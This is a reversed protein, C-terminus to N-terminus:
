VEECLGLVGGSGRWSLARRLRRGVYLFERLAVEIAVEVAAGYPWVGVVVVVVILFFVGSLLIKWIGTGMGM